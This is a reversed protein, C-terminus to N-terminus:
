GGSLIVWCSPFKSLAMRRLKLGFISFRVKGLELGLDEMFNAAIIIDDNGVGVLVETGDANVCLFINLPGEVFM